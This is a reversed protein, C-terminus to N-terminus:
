EDTSIRKPLATDDIVLVADPGGVLRNAQRALEEELPAWGV